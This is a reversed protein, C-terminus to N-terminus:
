PCSFPLRYNTVTTCTKGRFNDGNQRGSDKDNSNKEFIGLGFNKEIELIWKKM